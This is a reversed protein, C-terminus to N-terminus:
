RLSRQLELVRQVAVEFQGLGLRRNRIPAILAAVTSTGQDVDRASCLLVDMGAQAACVGVEAPTGFTTPSGAELAGTITAICNRDGRTQIIPVFRLQMLSRSSSELGHILPRM